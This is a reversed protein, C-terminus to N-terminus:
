VVLVPAFGGGPTRFNTTQGQYLRAAVLLPEARYTYLRIDLKRSAPEGDLRIMRQGPAAFTQAVYDGRAIEAWVSKTLKDGRYVAKSGHGSLPKFFLGKRSQWFQDANASTVLRTQPVGTLRQRMPESLGFTDLAVPDSLITLNRKNALLAHHHPNPTVVVAGNEYAARLATHEPRDLTFDVLRNYVLDIRRGDLFLESGQYQLAGADGIVADMGHKALMQRALVFEPYLYQELPADDVIAITAPSGPGRQLRWEELFMAAIREGFGGILRDKYRIAVEGCCAVQAGALVANLFAGGANTNVEILKPGDDDLHFDYGMLAGAPGHDRQSIDPAWALVADRYGPLQATAEIAEVIERMETLASASLFVPVNSFLHPRPETLSKFFGSEGAERDLQLALEERDLTICLCSQNLREPSLDKVLPLLADIADTM